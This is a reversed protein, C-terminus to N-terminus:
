RKNDKTVEKIRFSKIKTEMNEYMDRKLANNTYKISLKTM